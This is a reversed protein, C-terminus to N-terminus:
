PVSKWPAAALYRGDAALEHCLEVSEAMCQEREPQTWATEAGYVLLMYKM